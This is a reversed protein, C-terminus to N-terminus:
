TPDVGELLFPYWNIYAFPVCAVNVRGAAKRVSRLEEPEIYNDNGHYVCFTGNFFAMSSDVGNSPHLVGCATVGDLLDRPHDPPVAVANIEERRLLAEFEPRGGVVFVPISSDLKRLFEPDFHDEHAHSVVVADVALLRPDMVQPPFVSWSELYPPRQCVPDFLIKKGSLRVLISAHGVYFVGDGSSRLFEDLADSPHSLDFRNPFKM